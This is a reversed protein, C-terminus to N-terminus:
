AEEGDLLVAGHLECAESIVYMTKGSSDQVGGLYGKGRANDLIPCKCGKERAVNSGPPFQEVPDRAKKSM